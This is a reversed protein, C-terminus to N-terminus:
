ARLRQVIEDSLSGRPRVQLNEDLRCLLPALREIVHKEDSRRPEALCREGLDHRAFKTDVETRGGARDNCLRAIERCEQGIELITIYKEDVLNM